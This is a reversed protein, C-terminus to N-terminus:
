KKIYTKGNMIYLGNPTTICQGMINYKVNKGAKNGNDENINSIGTETGYDISACQASYTDWADKTTFVRILADEQNNGDFRFSFTGTYPDNDFTISAFTYGANHYVPVDPFKERNVECPDMPYKASNIITNNDKVGTGIPDTWEWESESPGYAQLYCWNDGRSFGAFQIGYMSVGEPLNVTYVTGNKFNLGDEFGQRPGKSENARGGRSMTVGKCSSNFIYTQNSTANSADRDITKQSLIVIDPNEIEQANINSTFLACAAFLFLKKM